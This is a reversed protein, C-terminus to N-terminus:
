IMWHFRLDTEAVQHLIYPSGNLASFLVQGSEAFNTCAIAAQGHFHQDEVTREEIDAFRKNIFLYNTQRCIYM